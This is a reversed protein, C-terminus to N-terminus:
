LVCELFGEAAAQSEPRQEGEHHGRRRERERPDRRRKPRDHGPKGCRHQHLSPLHQPIPPLLLGHPLAAALRQEDFRMQAFRRLQARERSPLPRRSRRRPPGPSRDNQQELSLATSACHRKRTGSQSDPSPPGTCSSRGRLVSTKRHRVELLACPLNHQSLAQDHM